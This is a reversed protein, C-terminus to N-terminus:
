LGVDNSVYGDFLNSFNIYMFQVIMKVFVVKQTLLMVTKAIIV